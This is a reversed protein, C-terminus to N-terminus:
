ARRWKSGNVKRISRVVFGDASTNQSAAIAATIVAVLELDDTLDEEKAAPAPAPRVPKAAPIEGPSETKSESEARGVFKFLSIVFVLFLLVVFVTGVGMLTNIGAGKLNGGVTEKESITLYAPLMQDYDKDYNYVFTLTGEEKEFVAPISVTVTEEEADVTLEAEGMSEYTGMTEGADVWAEVALRTFDDRSVEMQQMQSEDFSALSEVASQSVTICNQAMEDTIRQFGDTEETGCAALSVTCVAALMLGSIKKWTQKM